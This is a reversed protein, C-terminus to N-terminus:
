LSRGIDIALAHVPGSLEEELAKNVARHQQVRSMTEFEDAQIRVRFHSEGTGNDGAHGAHMHSENIVELSQITFADRLKREMTEAITM